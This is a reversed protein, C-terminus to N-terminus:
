ATVRHCADCVQSVRQKQLFGSGPDGDTTHASHCDVCMAANRDIAQWRPLFAHFHRRFDRTSTVDGHCKLCNADGIPVTLPAPRIARRTVWALLDGAGVSMAGIRGTIGRGSHCDICRTAQAHHSSALDVPRAAVSRQYYTSEPQSHCSACFSDNSEMHDAFAVTAGALVFFAAAALIPLSGVDFNKGSRSNRSPKRSRTM